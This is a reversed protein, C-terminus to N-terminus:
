VMRQIDAKSASQFPTMCSNMFQLLLHMWVQWPLTVGLRAECAQLQQVSAGAHIRENM